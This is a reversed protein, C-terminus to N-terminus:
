KKQNICSNTSPLSARGHTEVALYRWKSACFQGYSRNQGTLTKIFHTCIRGCPSTKIFFRGNSSCDNKKGTKLKQMKYCDPKKPPWPYAGPKKIQDPKCARLIFPM